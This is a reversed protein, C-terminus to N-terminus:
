EGRRSLYPQIKIIINAIRIIIIAIIFLIFSELVSFIQNVFIGSLSPSIKKKHGLGLDSVGGGETCIIKKSDYCWNHDGKMKSLLILPKM